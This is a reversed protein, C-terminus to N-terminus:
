VMIWNGDTIKNGNSWLLERIYDQSLRKEAWKLAETSLPPRNKLNHMDSALFHIRGEQLMKKAWRGTESFMGLELVEANMQFLAGLEQLKEPMDPKRLSRCREVHAIVPIYGAERLNQVAKQMVGGSAETSFETLVYRSGALTLVKGKKLSDLMDVHYYIENGPYIDMSIGSNEHFKEQVERCLAQIKEAGANKKWPLYHPTAIIKRVGCEASKALMQMCMDPDLAGDDIGPLVHTHIDIIDM